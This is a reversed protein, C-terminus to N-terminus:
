PIFLLLDGAPFTPALLRRQPYMSAISQRETTACLEFVHEVKIQVRMRFDLRQTAEDSDPTLHCYAVRFCRKSASARRRCAPLESGGTM